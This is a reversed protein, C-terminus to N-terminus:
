RGERREELLAELVGSPEAGEPFPALLLEDPIRSPREAPILVGKRILRALRAEDDEATGTEPILRAVPVGHDTIVITEGGRVEDILASLRTKAETITATKMDCAYRVGGGAVSEVRPFCV